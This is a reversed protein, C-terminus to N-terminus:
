KLEEIKKKVTSLEDHEVSGEFCRDIQDNVIDLVNKKFREREAQRALQILRGAIVDEAM